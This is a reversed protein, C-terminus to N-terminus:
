EESFYIPKWENYANQLASFRMEHMVTRDSGVNVEVDKSIRANILDLAEVGVENPTKMCVKCKSVISSHENSNSTIFRWIPSFAKRLGVPIISKGRAQFVISVTGDFGEKRAAQVMSKLSKNHKFCEDPLIQPNLAIEIRRMEKRGSDVKEYVDPQIIPQLVVDLGTNDNEIDYIFNLMRDASLSSISTEVIFANTKSDYLVSSMRAFGEDDSLDFAKLRGNINGKVPGDIMDLKAFGMYYIGNNSRMVSLQAYEYESGNIPKSITGKNQLAIEWSKLKAEITESVSQSYLSPGTSHVKFAYVHIKKKKM